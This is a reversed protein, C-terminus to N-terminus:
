CSSELAVVAQMVAVSNEANLFGCESTVAALSLGKFLLGGRM